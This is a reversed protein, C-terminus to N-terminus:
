KVVAALETRLIVDPADREALGVVKDNEYEVPPAVGALWDTLTVLKPEANLKVAAADVTEPLL